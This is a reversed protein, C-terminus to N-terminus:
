AAFTIFQSASKSWAIFLLAPVKSSMFLAVGSSQVVVRV